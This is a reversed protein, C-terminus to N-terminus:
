ERLILDIINISKELVFTFYFGLNKKFFKIGIRSANKPDCIFNFDFLREILM